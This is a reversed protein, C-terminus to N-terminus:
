WTGETIKRNGKKKRCTEMITGLTLCSSLLARPEYIVISNDNNRSTKIGFGKESLLLTLSAFTIGALRIQVVSRLIETVWRCDEARGVSSDRTDFVSYIIILYSVEDFFINRSM